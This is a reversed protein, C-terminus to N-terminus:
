ATSGNKWHVMRVFTPKKYKRRRRRCRQRIHASVRTESSSPAPSTAVISKFLVQHERQHASNVSALLPWALGDKGASVVVEYGSGQVWVHRESYTWTSEDGRSEPLEIWRHMLCGWATLQTWEGMWPM